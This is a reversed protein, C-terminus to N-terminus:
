EVRKETQRDTERECESKKLCVCSLETQINHKISCCWVAASLWVEGTIDSASLESGCQGRVAQRLSANMHVRVVILSNATWDNNSHLLPPHPTMINCKIMAGEEKEVSGSKILMATRWPLCPACKDARSFAALPSLSLLSHIQGWLLGCYIPVPSEAHNLM